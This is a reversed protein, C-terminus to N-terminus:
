KTSNYPIDGVPNLHQVLFSTLPQPSLLLYTKKKARRLDLPLSLGLKFADREVALISTVIETECVLNQRHEPQM